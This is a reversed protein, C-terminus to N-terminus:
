VTENELIAESMMQPEHKEKENLKRFFLITLSTAILFGVADAIPASYLIADIGQGPNKAEFLMPLTLILPIFVVMDRILAGLTSKLPEEVAQFFIASMKIFINFIIFMLYIRFTQIGFEMYVANDTSGFISIIGQPFATFLVTAIAGVILTSILIYRYTEKVRKYNKASYNYGLIPQGGLVIGVVINIVISYVKTLISFIAQPIDSGYISLAGYEKLVINLVITVAVISIQTIFSSIGLKIAKTTNVRDMKFSDKNLKFTKTKFIYFIIFILSFVQGAITAWAAGKIGMNFTNIFLPDLIINLIAGSLISFMAFNPSGDARIISTFMNAFMFAPFFAGVILIYDKAMAFNQETAGFMKLLPDAFVLTIVTLTVSIILTLIISNGIASAASKTEKRGQCNTLYAATGDGIWWAFAQAIMVLSFCVGVAANGVYGLESNGIFIQDVLNYLAGILLSIICPISFKILLKSIKDRGLFNNEM